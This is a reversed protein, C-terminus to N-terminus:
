SHRRFTLACCLFLFRFLHFFIWRIRIIHITHLPSSFSVCVFYFSFGCHLCQVSLANGFCKIQTLHKNIQQKCLTHALLYTNTHKHAYHCHDNFVIQPFHITIMRHYITNMLCVCVCVFLHRHRLCCCCCCFRRRCRHHHAGIILVIHVLALM